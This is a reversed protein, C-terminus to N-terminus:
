FFLGCNRKVEITYATYTTKLYSHSQSGYLCLKVSSDGSKSEKQGEAFSKIKWAKTKENTFVSLVVEYCETFHYRICPQESASTKKDRILKEEVRM